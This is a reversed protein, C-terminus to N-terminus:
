KLFVSNVYKTIENLHSVMDEPKTPGGFNGRTHALRWRAKKQLLAILEQAAIYKDVREKVAINYAEKVYTDYADEGDM